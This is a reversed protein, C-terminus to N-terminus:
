LIRREFALVNRWGDLARAAAWLIRSRLFYRGDELRLQGSSVLRELRIKLMDGPSYRREIEERAIEDGARLEILIHLRRATESLNFFHFYAYALCGYALAAYGWGLWLAEGRQQTLWLRWCAASELPAGLLAAAVALMQPSFGRGNSGRLLLAHLALVLAPSAALAALFYAQSM